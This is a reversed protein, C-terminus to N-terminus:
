REKWCIHTARLVWGPKIIVKDPEEADPLILSFPLDLRMPNITCKAAFLSYPSGTFNCPYKVAVGLGFFCGEGMWCEQDNVKGTHNSGLMAGYAINGRGLPWLAAILLAQHHFGVFPGILSHHCEGRAISSDLGLFSM